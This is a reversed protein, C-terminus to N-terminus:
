VECEQMHARGLVFVGGDPRFHFNSVQNNVQFVYHVKNECHSYPINLRMKVQCQHIFVHYLVNGDNSKVVLSTFRLPPVLWRKNECQELILDGTVSLLSMNNLYLYLQAFVRM